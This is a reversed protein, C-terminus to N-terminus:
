FCIKEYDILEKPISPSFVELVSRVLLDIIPLDSMPFEKLPHRTNTYKFFRISLREDDCGDVAKWVSVEIDNIQRFYILKEQM